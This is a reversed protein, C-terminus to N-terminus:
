FFVSSGSSGKGLVVARLMKPVVVSGAGLGVVLCKLSLIVVVEGGVSFGLGGSGEVVAARGLPIKPDAM